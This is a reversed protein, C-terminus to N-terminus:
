IQPLKRYADSKSKIDKMILQLKEIFSNIGDVLEGIEDESKM